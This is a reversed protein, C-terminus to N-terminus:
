AEGSGRYTWWGDPMPEATWGREPLLRELLATGTAPDTGASLKVAFGEVVPVGTADVTQVAQAFPVM